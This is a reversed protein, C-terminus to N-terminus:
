TYFKPLVFWSVDLVKVAALSVLGRQHCRIHLSVGKPVEGLVPQTGVHPRPPRTPTPAFVGGGFGLM